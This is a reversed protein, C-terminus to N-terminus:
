VKTQQLDYRSTFEDIHADAVATLLESLKDYKINFGRKNLEKAEKILYEKDEETLKKM